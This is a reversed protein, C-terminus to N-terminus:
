VGEYRSLDRRALVDPRGSDRRDLFRNSRMQNKYYYVFKLLTLYSPVAALSIKPPQELNSRHLPVDMSTSRCFTKAALAELRPLDAQIRIAGVHQRCKRDGAATAAEAEVAV